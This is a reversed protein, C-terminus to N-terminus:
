HLSEVAALARGPSGVGNVSYVIGNKIWILAYEGLFKGHPATEILTGTVGDVPVARSSTGNRPLPIVLTSSWDVTQCFAHAEAPSMGAVELGAEALASLNLTPPVSVVPTRAQFFSICSESSAIAFAPTGTRRATAHNPCNGYELRVLRPIFVAVTSGNVSAPIQVDSRGAQDLVDQIRDRDLTMHFAGEAQVHINAPPDLDTLSRVPFGAMQTAAELTSVLKPEGPKMTIVVSDSIMQALLKGNTNNAVDESTIGPLDVPIVAVKQVRLMQLFKQAWARAPAFSVLFAIVAVAAVLAWAPRRWQIFLRKLSTAMTHAPEPFRQEFHAYALAPNASLEAPTPTLADLVNRVHDARRTITALRARCKECHELHQDLNASEPPPSSMM